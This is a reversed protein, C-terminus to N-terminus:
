CGKTPLEKGGYRGYCGLAQRREVANVVEAPFRGSCPFVRSAPSRETSFVRGM